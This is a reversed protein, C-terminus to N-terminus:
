WEASQKFAWYQVINIIEKEAHASIWKHFKHNQNKMGFIAPFECSLCAHVKRIYIFLLETDCSGHM